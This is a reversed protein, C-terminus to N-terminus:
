FWSIIVWGCVWWWWWCNRQLCGCFYYGLLSGFDALRVWFDDGLPSLFDWVISHKSSPNQNYAALFPLHLWPSLRLSIDAIQIAFFHFFNTPPGVQTSNKFFICSFENEQIWFHQFTTRMNQKRIWMEFVSFLVCVWVLKQTTRGMSFPFHFCFVARKWHFWVHGIVESICM